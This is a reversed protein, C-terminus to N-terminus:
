NLTGGNEEAAFRKQWIGVVKPLTPAATSCDFELDVLGLRRGSPVGQIASIM